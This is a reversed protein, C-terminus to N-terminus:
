DGTNPQVDSIQPRSIGSVVTVLVSAGSSLPVAILASGQALFRIVPEGEPGVGPLDAPDTTQLAKGLEPTTLPALSAQWQAATQGPKLQSWLKVFNVAATVYEGSDPIAAATVTPTSAAISTSKPDTHDSSGNGFLASSGAFIVIVMSLGIVALRRPTRCAWAVLDGFV